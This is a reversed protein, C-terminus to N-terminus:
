TPSRSRSGAGAGPAVHGKGSSSRRTRAAAGAAEWDRNWASDRVPSGRARRSTSGSGPNASPDAGPSLKTKTVGDHLTDWFRGPATSSILSAGPPVRPHPPPLSPSPHSQPWLALFSQSSEWALFPSPHPCSDRLNLPHFTCFPFLLCPSLLHLIVSHSYHPSLM